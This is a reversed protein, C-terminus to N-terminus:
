GGDGEGREHLPPAKRAQEVIAYLRGADLENNRIRRVRIGHRSLHEGRARDYDVIGEADHIGGDLEIALKLEACYFDVVFGYLVVQRRFKLGSCRRARLLM